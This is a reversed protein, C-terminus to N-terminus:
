DRFVERVTQVFTRVNEEPTKPLIGHGLGCVWGARDEISMEQLPKLYDLLVNKFDKPDTFLLTQDFNGQFFGQKLNAPLHAFNWRHDFGFGAFGCDNLTEYHRAVTGKGYYAVKGQFESVLDKIQPKIYKEFQYSSLEGSATDLVMIVEAGGELQLRINEKLLPIMHSCFKEFLPLNTKAATLHGKHAGEIAYTFLTWPGGIFGILSKDKPLVERTAMVAQRQFQMFEVAEELPKLSNFDVDLLLPNLQPGPNYKLGLGLAELPFLIDSFLISVDFDFDQIPGLATEAALEPQKCLEEFTYKEKLKQYHSHYRGAQRMFWIPPVAQPIKNIANQFKINSM